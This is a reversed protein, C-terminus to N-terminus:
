QVVPNNDSEKKIQEERRNAFHRQVVLAVLVFSCVIGFFAIDSISVAPMLIMLLM